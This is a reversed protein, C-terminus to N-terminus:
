DNKSKDEIPVWFATVPDLTLKQSSRNMNYLFLSKEEEITSHVHLEDGVSVAAEDQEPAAYVSLLPNDGPLPGHSAKPRSLFRKMSAILTLGHPRSGAEFDPAEDAQVITVMTCRDCDALMRLGIGHEGEVGVPGIFVRTWKSEALAASGAVVINPRFRSAPLEFSFRQSVM